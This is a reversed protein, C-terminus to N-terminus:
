LSSTMFINNLAEIKMKTAEPNYVKEEIKFDMIKKISFKKSTEPEV